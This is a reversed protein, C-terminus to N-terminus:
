WLTPGDNEAGPRRQWYAHRTWRTGTYLVTTECAELFRRFLVDRIVVENNNCHITRHFWEMVESEHKDRLIRSTYLWTQIDEGIFVAPANGSRFMDQAPSNKCSPAYILTSSTVSNQAEPEELTKIGLRDLLAIDISNMDPDQIFVRTVNYDQGTNTLLPM